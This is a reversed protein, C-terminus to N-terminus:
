LNKIFLKDKERYYKTGLINLFKVARDTDVCGINISNPLENFILKKARSYSYFDSDGNMFELYIKDNLIEVTKIM